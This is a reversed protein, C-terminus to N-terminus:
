FACAQESVCRMYPEKNADSICNIICDCLIRSLFLACRLQGFLSGVEINMSRLTIKRALSTLLLVNRSTM